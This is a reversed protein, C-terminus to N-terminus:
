HQCLIQGMLHAHQCLDQMRCVFAQSIQKAGTCTRFYQHSTPTGTLKIRCSVISLYTSSWLTSRVILRHLSVLQHRYPKSCDAIHGIYNRVSPYIIIYFCDALVLKYIIRILRHLCYESLEDALVGIFGHNINISNFLDLKRGCGWLHFGVSTAYPQYNGSLNLCALIVGILTTWIPLVQTPGILIDSEVM